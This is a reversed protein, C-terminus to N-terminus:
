ERNEGMKINGSNIQGIISGMIQTVGNMVNPMSLEFRHCVCRSVCPGEM